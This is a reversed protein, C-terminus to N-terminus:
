GVVVARRVSCLRADNVRWNTLCLICHYISTDIQLGNHACQPCLSRTHLWDRYTDLADERTDESISYGYAHALHSAREWADREMGILEIDRQFTTHGLLAHALEHFLEAPQTATQDFSITQNRSSWSFRDSATFNFQSFDQRLKALLSSPMNIVDM